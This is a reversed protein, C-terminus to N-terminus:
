ADISQTPLYLSETKNKTESVDLSALTSQTELKLNGFQFQQQNEFLNLFNVM